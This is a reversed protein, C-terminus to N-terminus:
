SVGDREQKLWYELIHNETSLLSIDAMSQLQNPFATM